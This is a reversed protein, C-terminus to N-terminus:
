YAKWVLEQKLEPCPPPAFMHISFVSSNQWFLFSDRYARADSRRQTKITPLRSTRVELRSSDPGRDCTVTIHAGGVEGNSNLVALYPRPHLARYTSLHLWSNFFRSLKPLCLEWWCGVRGWSGFPLMATLPSLRSSNFPTTGEQQVNGQDDRQRGIANWQVIRWQECPANDSKGRDDYPILLHYRFTCPSRANMLSALFDLATKYHNSSSRRLVFM